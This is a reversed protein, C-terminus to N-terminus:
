ALDARGPQGAVVGRDPEDAQAVQSGSGRLRLLMWGGFALLVAGIGATEILQVATWGHPPPITLLMGVSMGATAVARYRTSSVALPVLGWLLYWAYVVPALLALILLSWGITVGLPRRRGRLILIACVVGAVVLCVVRSVTLPDFTLRLLGESVLLHLLKALLTAPAAPSTVHGPVGLTRLWGLSDPVAAALVGYTAVAIAVDGGVRRLRDGTSHSGALHLWGIAALAPLASAKVAFAATAAVVALQWRGARAAAIAAVTALIMLSDLHGASTLELLVLPSILLYSLIEARRDPHAMRAAIFATAVVAAGVIIRILAWTFLPSGGGLWASIHEVLSALPGYPSPTLRWRPDVAALAATPGLAVPGSQYPDLGQWQLLGQAAYSYSDASMLPPALLLIGSWLAALKTVGRADMAGLRICHHIVLWALAFVVIASILFIVPWQDRTTAAAFPALLGFWNWLPWTGAEPGARSGAIAIGLVAVSGVVAAGHAARVPQRRAM